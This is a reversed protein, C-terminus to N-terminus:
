GPRARRDLVLVAVREEGREAEDRRAVRQDIRSALWDPALAGSALLTEGIGDGRGAARDPLELRRPRARERAPDLGLRALAAQLERRAGRLRQGLPDAAEDALAVGLARWWVRIAEISSSM